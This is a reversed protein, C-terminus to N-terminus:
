EFNPKYEWQSKELVGLMKKIEVNLDQMLIEL